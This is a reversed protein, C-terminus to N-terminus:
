SAIILRKLPASTNLLMDIKNLYMQISNNGNLEDIKLLGDWDVSFYDIIFNQRYFIWWDREYINSKNSSINRLM